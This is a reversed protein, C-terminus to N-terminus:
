QQLPTANSVVDQFENSENAFFTAVISINHLM